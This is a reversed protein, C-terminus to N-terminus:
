VQQEAAQPRKPWILRYCSPHMAIVEYRDTRLILRECAAAAAELIRKSELARPSSSLKDSALVARGSGM